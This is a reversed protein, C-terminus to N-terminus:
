MRIGKIDKYLDMAYLDTMGSVFDIVSRIKEYYSNSQTKFQHPLLSLLKKSYNYDPNLVSYIFEELLTGLVNFGSLEIKVVSPDNYIQDFALKKCVDFAERSVGSLDDVLTSDYTGEMISTYNDMFSQAAENVLKNIVSARLYAIQENTDTVESFIKEKNELFSRDQEEDFFNILLEYTKATDLIKLKHADEIDMIEYCIDDAAEVIYVLPHRAYQFPDDSIKTLGLEEAITQFAAKETQFFGYKKKKFESGFPYKVLSALTSYTLAYGGQRRGRFQHTLLRLANANGEFHILDNWESESVLNELHKGKGEVFFKSIADEGAHGFPPNGMDHCLCAASVISGLENFLENDSIQEKELLMFGIINAISRGVSAVELSHTLRNHVFISGPLPFVQTKNQLRRFPSSFVVRDFDRQFQSRADASSAISREELGFRKASLLKDWQMM